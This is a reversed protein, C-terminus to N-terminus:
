EPKADAEVNSTPQLVLSNQLLPKLSKLGDYGWILAVSLAALTAVLAVNVALGNIALLAAAVTLAIAAIAFKMLSGSLTRNRASKNIASRANTNALDRFASINKSKEPANSLPVYTEFDFAELEEKAPEPSVSPNSVSSRSQTSSVASSQISSTAPEIEPESGGRMRALLSKMYAEVSDDEVAEKSASSAQKTTQYSSAADSQVAQSGAKPALSFPSDATEPEEDAAMALQDISLVSSPRQPMEEAVPEELGFGFFQVEDDAPKEALKFYNAEVECAPEGSLQVAQTSTVEDFTDEFPEASAPAPASKVAMDDDDESWWSPLSSQKGGSPEEEVLSASSDISDSYADAVLPDRNTLNDELSVYEQAVSDFQNSDISAVQSDFAAIEQQVDDGHQSDADVPTPAINMPNLLDEDFQPEAFQQEAFQQEITSSTPQFSLEVHSEEGNPAESTAPWPEFVQSPESEASEGAGFAFWDEQPSPSDAIASSEQSYGQEESWELVAQETSQQNFEEVFSDNVLEQHVPVEFEPQSDQTVYSSVGFETWVQPEPQAQPAPQAQPVPELAIGSQNSLPQEVSSEEESATATNFIPEVVESIASNSSENSTASSTASSTANSAAISAANAQLGASASQMLSLVELRLEAKWTQLEQLSQDHKARIDTLAETIVAPVEAQAKGESDQMATQLQNLHQQVGSQWRVIEQQAFEHTAKLSEIADVLASQDNSEVLSTFGSVANTLQQLQQQVESKWVTNEQQVAQQREQLHRLSESVSVMGTQLQEIASQQVSITSQQVAIVNAIETKANSNAEADQAIIREITALQQNVDGIRETLTEMTASQQAVMGVIEQEKTRRDQENVKREEDQHRVADLQAQLAQSQFEALPLLLSDIQAELPGIAERIVNAVWPADVNNVNKEQASQEPATSLNFPRALAFQMRKSDKRVRESEAASARLLHFHLGAIEFYPKEDSLLLETTAIGDQSLEGALSRVFAQRSGSVLLAHLPAIGPLPCHITCSPASGLTGKPLSLDWSQLAKGTSDSVILKPSVSPLRGTTSSQPASRVPVIVPTAFINTATQLM